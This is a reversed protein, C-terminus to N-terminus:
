DTKNVEELVRDSLLGHTTMVDKVLARKQMTVSQGPIVTREEGYEMSISEYNGINFTRRYIFTIKVPDQPVPRGTEVKKAM